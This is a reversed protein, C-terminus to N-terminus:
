ESFEGVMADFKSDKLKLLENYQTRLDKIQSAVFENRERYKDNVLKNFDPSRQNANALEILGKMLTQKEDNIADIHAVITRMREWQQGYKASMSNVVNLGSENGAEMNKLATVVPELKDQIHRLEEEQATYRLPKEGSVFLKGVLFMKSPDFTYTGEEMELYQSAVDLSVVGGQALLTKYMYEIQNPSIDLGTTQKLDILAKMVIDNNLFRAGTLRNQKAWGAAKDQNAADIARGFTDENSSIGIMAGIGAPALQQDLRMDSMLSDIVHGSIARLIHESVPDKHFEEYVRRTINAPTAVIGPKRITIFDHNQGGDDTYPIPLHWFMDKQQSPISKYLEDQENILALVATPVAIFAAYKLARARGGPTNPSSMSGLQYAVNMFAKGFPFMAAQIAAATESNGRMRFNISYRSAAYAAEAASKGKNLDSIYSSIRTSSEGKKAVVDLIDATARIYSADVFGRFAQGIARKWIHEDQERTLGILNKTTVGNAEAWKVWRNTDAQSTTHMGSLLGGNLEAEKYVTSDLSVAYGSAANIYPLNRITTSPNFIATSVADSMTLILGVGPWHTIIAQLRKTYAAIYDVAKALPNLMIPLESGAMKADFFTGYNLMADAILSDKYEFERLVGKDYIFDRGALKEETWRLEKFYVKFFPVLQPNAALDIQIGKSKLLRAIQETSIVASRIDPKVEKIVSNSIERGAAFIKRVIQIKTRNTMASKIMVEVFDQYVKLPDVFSDGKYKDPIDRVGKHINAPSQVSKIGEPMAGKSGMDSITKHPLYVDAVDEMAKAADASLVDHAVAFDLANKNFAQLEKAAEEYVANIEPRSAIDRMFAKAEAEPIALEKNGGKLKAARRTKALDSYDLTRRALLYTSLNLSFKTDVIGMDQLKINAGGVIDKLGKNDSLNYKYYGPNAPDSIAVVQKNDIWSKAVAEKNEVQNIQVALNTRDIFGIDESTVRGAKIDASISKDLKKDLREVSATQHAVKQEIIAFNDLMRTLPNPRKLSSMYGEAEARYRAPDTSGFLAGNTKAFEEAEEVTKFRVEKTFVPVSPDAQKRAVAYADAADKSEFYLPTKGNSLPTGTENVVEHPRLDTAAHVLSITKKHEDVVDQAINRERFTLSEHSLVPANADKTFTSVLINKAGKLFKIGTAVVFPFTAQVAGAGAAELPDVKERLLSEKEAQQQVVNLGAGAAADVGVGVAYGLAKRKVLAGVGLGIYNTLDTAGAWLNEALAAYGGGSSRWFAPAEEWTDRMLKFSEVAAQNNAAKADYLRKLDIGAYAINNDFERMDSAWTDVVDQNSSFTKTPETQAYWTKAKEVFPQNKSVSAFFNPKAGPRVMAAESIDPRTLAADSFIDPEQPAATPRTLAEDSFIDGEQTFPTSLRNKNVPM